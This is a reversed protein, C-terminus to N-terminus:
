NLTPSNNTCCKALEYIPWLPGFLEDHILKILYLCIGALPSSLRLVLPLCLRGHWSNKFLRLNVEVSLCSFLDGCWVSLEEFFGSKAILSISMEKLFLRDNAFWAMLGRFCEAELVFLCIITILYLRQGGGLLMCLSLVHLDAASSLRWEM